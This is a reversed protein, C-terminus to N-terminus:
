YAIEELGTVDKRKTWIDEEAGLEGIDRAEIEVRLTLSWTVCANINIKMHIMRSHKYMISWYIYTGFVDLMVHKLM